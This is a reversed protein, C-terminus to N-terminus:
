GFDGIYKRVELTLKGVMNDSNPRSLIIREAQILENMASQEWDSNKESEAVLKHAAKTHKRVLASMEDYDKLMYERYTNGSQPSPKEDKVQSCGLGFAIFVLTATCFIIKM